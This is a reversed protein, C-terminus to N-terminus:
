RGQEIFSGNATTGISSTPIRAEYPKMLEDKSNKQADYDFSKTIDFVDNIVKWTTAEDHYSTVYCATLIITM